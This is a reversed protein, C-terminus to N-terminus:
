AAGNRDALREVPAKVQCGCPPNLEYDIVYELFEVEWWLPQSLLLTPPQGANIETLFDLLEARRARLEDEPKRIHCWTYPKVFCEGTTHCFSVHMAREPPVAPNLDFGALKMWGTSGCATGIFTGAPTTVMVEKSDENLSGRQRSKRLKKKKLRSSM